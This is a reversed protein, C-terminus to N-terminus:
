TTLKKRPRNGIVTAAWCGPQLFCLDDVDSDDGHAGHDGNEDADDQAHRALEPLDDRLVELASLVQDDVVKFLVNDNHLFLLLLQLKM